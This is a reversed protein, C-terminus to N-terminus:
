IVQGADETVVTAFVLQISYFGLLSNIEHASNSFIQWLIFSVKCVTKLEM